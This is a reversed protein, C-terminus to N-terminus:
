NSLKQVNNLYIDAAKQAEEFIATIRLSAEALNGAETVLLEKSALKEELVLKEQKLKDIEQAQLLMIELLEVKRLKKLQKKDM